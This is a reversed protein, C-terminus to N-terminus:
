DTANAKKGRRLLIRGRVTDANRNSTLEDIEQIIEEAREYARDEIANYM